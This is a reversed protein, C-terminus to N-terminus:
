QYNCGDGYDSGSQNKNSTKTPYSSGPMYHYDLSSNGSKGETWNPSATGVPVSVPFTIPTNVINDRLTDYVPDLVERSAIYGAVAGAVKLASGGFVLSLDNLKLEKM